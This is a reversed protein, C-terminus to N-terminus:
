IDIRTRIWYFREVVWCCDPRSLWVARCGVLIGGDLYLLIISFKRMPMKAYVLVAAQDQAHLRTMRKFRVWKAPIPTPLLDKKLDHLVRERDRKVARM